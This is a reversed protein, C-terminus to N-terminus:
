FLMCNAIPDSFGLLILGSLLHLNNVSVIQFAIGGLKLDFRLHVTRLTTERYISSIAYLLFHLTHQRIPVIRWTLFAFLLNDLLQGLLTHRRFVNDVHEIRLHFAHLHLLSSSTTLNRAFVTHNHRWIVWYNFLFANWTNLELHVLMSFNLPSTGVIIILSTVIIVMSSLLRTKKWVLIRTKFWLNLIILRLHCAFVVMFVIFSKLYSYRGTAFMIRHNLPLFLCLFRARWVKNTATKFNLSVMFVCVLIRIQFCILSHDFISWWIQSWLYSSCLLLHLFSSFRSDKQGQLSNIM